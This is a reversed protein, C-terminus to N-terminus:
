YPVCNGMKSKWAVLWIARTSWLVVSGKWNRLWPWCRVSGLYFMDSCPKTLWAHINQQPLCILFANWQGKAVQVSTGQWLLPWSHICHEPTVTHIIAHFPVWCFRTGSQTSHIDLLHPSSRFTRRAQLSLSGIHHICWDHQTLYEVTSNSDVCRFTTFNFHVTIWSNLHPPQVCHMSNHNTVIHSSKHHITTIHLSTHHWGASSKTNEFEPQWVHATKKRYFMTGRAPDCVGQSVWGARQPQGESRASQFDDLVTQM